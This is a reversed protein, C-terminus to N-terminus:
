NRKQTLLLKKWNEFKGILGRNWYEHENFSINCCGVIPLNIVTDWNLELLPWTARKNYSAKTRASSIHSSTENFFFIWWMNVGNQKKLKTSSVTHHHNIIVLVLLSFRVNWKLFIFHFMSIENVVNHYWTNCKM